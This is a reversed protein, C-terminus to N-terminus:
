GNDNLVGFWQHYWRPLVQDRLGQIEWSQPSFVVTIQGQHATDYWRYGQQRYRAAVKASPLRWANYRSASALAAAAGARQVFALTSSSNSGHHPVQVITSALHQWYRKLMAMEGPAEIDGTLLISHRGDDVRVVCSRNNGKAQTGALPWHVTFNLGQWQWREGRFCPGHGEWGLPSRVWLAPWAKQVSELGGRHDLHEHSLIVGEPVLAHWRLWPIILQKGSDGGPWAAGTDYLLVKGNREIAMALGHGVDLMHVYWAQTKESRWLPFILLTLYVLCLLPASRWWGFRFAVLLLWPSLSLWQWRADVQLWGAPLKQLFCFLGDLTQNALHWCANQALVPGSLHLLMGSLILPVVIFTVVPVALLNALLASLSIGHFMAIQIPLLLCTLGSQLHLINIGARVWGACHRGPAPMWQCWFIIAAVALVSLWLSYSLVALPDSFLIGGMCCSWVQWPSWLRGSLRLAAWISLAIVTRLAPPQLGTIWAYLLACAVGSLLPLRWGIWRPPLFFQVGRVGSWGLLAALAIHLGSIAMLHATGTQRMVDKVGADLMSREGMGLALIVDRWPYTDLVASLSALYSARWNCKKDLLRAGSFRGSLPQHTALAYRQTDFGGDNLQGHVARIHLTMAWRQGACVPEPLYEGYLTIGPAPRLPEGNIRVITAQHRTLGDTARIVVEAQRKAGPLHQTPWLAQQAALVGWAFALLTMGAYRMARPRFCAMCCGSIIVGWVALIGPLVPLWLLPIIGLTFCAALAPLTM